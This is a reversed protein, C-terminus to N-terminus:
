SGSNDARHCRECTYFGVAFATKGDHCVGCYRGERVADMNIPDAGAKMQFLADHCVFCKFRTRHIWHPFFAQPMFATSDEGKRPLTIDGLVGAAYAVVVPGASVLLLLAIAAHRIM